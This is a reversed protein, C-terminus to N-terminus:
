LKSNIEEESPLEVVSQPQPYAQVSPPANDNYGQNINFNDVPKPISDNPAYNIPLYIPENSNGEKQTIDVPSPISPNNFDPNVTTQEQNSALPKKIEYNENYENNKCCVNPLLVVLFNILALVSSIICIITAYQFDESGANSHFILFISILILIAINIVLEGIIAIYRAIRKGCGKVAFFLIIFILVALLIVLLIVLIGAGDGDGGSCNCDGGTCNCDGCNDCDNTRHRSHYVAAGTAGGGVVIEGGAVASNNKDKTCFSFLLILIFLFSLLTLIGSIQSEVSAELKRLKKPSDEYVEQFKEKTFLTVNVQPMQNKIDTKIKNLKLQTGRLNSRPLNISTLLRQSSQYYYYNNHSSNINFILCLIGISGLLNVFTLLGTVPGSIYKM